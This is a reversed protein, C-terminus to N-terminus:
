SAVSYHSSIAAILHFVVHEQVRSVPAQSACALGSASRVCTRACFRQTGPISSSRRGGSLGIRLNGLASRCKDLAWSHSFSVLRESKLPPWTLLCATGFRFGRM